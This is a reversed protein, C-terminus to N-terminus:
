PTLKFVTGFGNVGNNSTTGYLNGASDRILSSRPYAGDAGGTFRYLVTETGLMDVKFVTGCGCIADGGFATTGYLDGAADRVLGAQPYAGDAGGTFRHLVHGKRTRRDIKFVTGCGCVNDGGYGTIGYLYGAADGILGALPSAGDAGGTFTHLVKQRGASDFKFITGAGAALSNQTTAYLHGSADLILGGYPIAGDPAGKFSYLTVVIQAQTSPTSVVASLVALLALAARAALRLPRRPLIRVFAHIRRM